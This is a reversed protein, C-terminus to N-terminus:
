VQTEQTAPLKKVLQAVLPVWNMPCGKLWKLFAVMDGEGKRMEPILLGPAVTDSHRM